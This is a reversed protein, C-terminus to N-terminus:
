RRQASYFVETSALTTSGYGCPYVDFHFTPDPDAEPDADVHYAPNQDADGDAAFHYAPDFDPDAYIQLCPL